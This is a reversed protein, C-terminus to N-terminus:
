ILFLIFKVFVFIEVSDINIPIRIVAIPKEAIKASMVVRSVIFMTEIAARSVPARAITV